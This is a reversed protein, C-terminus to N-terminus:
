RPKATARQTQRAKGTAEGEATAGETAKQFETTRQRLNSMRELNFGSPNNWENRADRAAAAASPFNQDALMLRVEDIAFMTQQARNMAAGQPDAKSKLLGKLFVSVDAVIAESRSANGRELHVILERINATVELSNM